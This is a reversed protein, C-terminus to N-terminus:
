SHDIEGIPPLNLRQAEHDVGVMHLIATAQRQFLLRLDNRLRHPPPPRVALIKERGGAM